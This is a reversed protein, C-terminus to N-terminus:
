AGSATRGARKLAALRRVLRFLGHFVAFGPRNTDQYRGFRGRVADYAGLIVARAAPAKGAEREVDFRYYVYRAYPWLSPRMARSGGVRGAHRRLLHWLNRADFYRQLQRGSRDFSSSGKHWVLTQGLVACGFGARRARLCLDSEEHVIFFEEDFMGVARVLAATVMMCCGNVIDVPVLPPNATDVPVVIRKFFVTGPGTNFAVGDTMVASPEDMFNVVPGVIGLAPDLAFARLLAPIIGPDVITDNNVILVYDAGLALAREIGRNNGGAYGLNEPTRIYELGPYAIVAQPGPDIESANDVLVVVDPPPLAQRLSALCKLTDALGNYNLVVVAVRPQLTEPV